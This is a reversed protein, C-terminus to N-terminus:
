ALKNTKIARDFGFLAEANAVLIRRRLEMDGDLWATFRDLLLGVDPGGNDMRIFPWDSAWLVRDPAASVLVRHFPGADDFAPGQQSVRCVSLKVWVAGDAAAEVIQRFLPDDPGRSLDPMGMHDLVIPMGLARLWPLREVITEAPAWVQAHLGLERMIPALAELHSIGVSGPRVGGGPAPFDSFRLAVVGAKALAELVAPSVSGDALAVGRTNPCTALADVLASHDFGYHAPQVLLARDLGSQAWYTQHASIPALPAPFAPPHVLPFREFPGFVHTHSDCAGQPLPEQPARVPRGPIPDLIM